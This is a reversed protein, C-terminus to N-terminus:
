STVIKQKGASKIKPVNKCTAMNCYRCMIAQYSHYGSTKTISHFGLYISGSQFIHSLGVRLFRRETATCRLLVTMSHIIEQLFCDPQSHCITKHNTGLRIQPDMPYGVRWGDSAGQPLLLFSAECIFLVSGLSLCPIQTEPSGYQKKHTTQTQRITCGVTNIIIIIIIIIILIMIM